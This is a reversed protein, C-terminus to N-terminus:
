LNDGRSKKSYFYKANEIVFKLTDRNDQSINKVNLSQGLTRPDIEGYLDGIATNLFSSTLLTVGEFDLMISDGKQIHERIVSRVLNGHTAAVCIDTGTIDIIRLTITAM